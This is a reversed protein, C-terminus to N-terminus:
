RGNGRPHRGSAPNNARSADGIRRVLEDLLSNSQSPPLVSSASSPGSVFPLGHLPYNSQVSVLTRFPTGYPNDFDPYTTPVLHPLYTPPIAATPPGVPTVVSESAVGLKTNGKKPAPSPTAVHSRPASPKKSPSRPERSHPSRTRRRNPNDASQPHRSRPRPSRSRHRNDRPTSTRRREPRSKASASSARKDSHRPQLTGREPSHSPMSTAGSNLLSSLHHHFTM